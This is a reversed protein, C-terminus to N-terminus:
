GPHGRSRRAFFPDKGDGPRPMAHGLQATRADRRRRHVGHDLQLRADLNRQCSAPGFYGPHGSRSSCSPGTGLIAGAGRVMGAGPAHRIEIRACGVETRGLMGQGAHRCELVVPGARMTWRGNLCVIGAGASLPGLEGGRSGLPQARKQGAFREGRSPGPVAPSLRRIEGRLARGNTWGARLDAQAPSHSRNWRRSSDCQDCAVELKARLM